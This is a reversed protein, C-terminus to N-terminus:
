LVLYFCMELSTIMPYKMKYFGQGFSLM